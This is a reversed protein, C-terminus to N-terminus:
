MVPLYRSDRTYFHRTPILNSRSLMCFSFPIPILRLAPSWWYKLGNNKPYLIGPIRTLSVLSLESRKGWPYSPSLRARRAWSRQKLRLLQLLIILHLLTSCPSALLEQSPFSLWPHWCSWIISDLEKPEPGMRIFRIFSPEWSRNEWEKRRSLVHGPNLYWQETHYTKM